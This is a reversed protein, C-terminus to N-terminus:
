RMGEAEARERMDEILRRGARGIQRGRAHVVHMRFRVGALDPVELKKLRGEAIPERVMHEPMNCWGFGALLFELRTALDAFRWLNHSVIGGHFSATLPTRDTLILQTQPELTERSLPGHILALPHDCAVVPILEVDLLFQSVLDVSRTTAQPYIAFHAVKERLRQESGGLSETFLRVPLLPFEVHLTRLSAKLLGTPFVADVAFSLEPEVEAAISAARSKLADAGQLLRRADEVLVRGAETLVPLKASRDFLKVRLTGELTAIAQSVASQARGISRAAASFSGVDVVAVFIRAQDLTPTEIM